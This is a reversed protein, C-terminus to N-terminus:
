CSLQHKSTHSDLVCLRLGPGLGLVQAELGLGVYLGIVQDHDESLLGPIEENHV